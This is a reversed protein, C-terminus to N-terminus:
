GPGGQQAAIGAKRAAVAVLEMNNATLGSTVLQVSELMLRMESLVLDREDENMLISQRGDAAKEAVGQFVFKYTMGSLAILLVVVSLWCVKCMQKEKNLEPM